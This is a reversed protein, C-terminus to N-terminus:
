VDFEIPESLEIAKNITIFVCVFTIALAVQGPATHMVNNYWDANMLKLGPILGVVLALMGLAQRLPMMMKTDNEARQVKLDAFKNVIPTLSGRLTNDYQCLILNDCWQRFLKNDLSDKMKEIQAPANPDVFNVNNVFAQFVESVPHNIHKLNEQIAGVIDNTRMYSTTIMSLAVELEDTIYRNYRYLSFRSVWLPVFFLGIGLVISLLVNKFLLGSTAGAAAAIMSIQITKQYKGAQGISQFTEKAKRKSQTLASEKRRGNLREVYDKATKGKQPSEKALQDAAKKIQAVVGIRPVLPFDLIMFLSVLLLFFVIISKVM